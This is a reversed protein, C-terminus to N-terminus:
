LGLKRKAKKCRPDDAAMLHTLDDLELCQRLINGHLETFRPPVAEGVMERILGFHGRELVEGWTFDEPITQLLQCELPSLVRHEWPHITNDSSLRNSATTVTTAPRIPAMRRYSSNRFGSVLRVTGDNEVVVPRLLPAQCLPCEADESGVDVEGCAPCQQNEWASGGSGPPIAAVMAHHEPSWVPVRHLRRLPDVAAAASAADLFPLDFELLAEGVSVPDLGEPGGAHTPHPYPARQAARLAGLAPEERHVFTLFSRVRSQPVGFECLDLVVPFAQYSDQLMQCLLRAAAIGEGTKPHPVMRTLFAQVNEVVILRPQLQRAVQAIPLVLLNRHDRAGAAIDDDRGRGGRATSMGQCPPCAALLAPRKSGAVARYRGVVRPWTKRLDGLVPRAEPHNMCAVRLRHEELEAM